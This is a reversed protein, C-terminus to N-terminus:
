RTLSSQPSTSSFRQGHKERLPLCQPPCPSSPGPPPYRLLFLPLQPDEHGPSWTRTPSRCLPTWALSAPVSPTPRTTAWWSRCSLPAPSTLTSHSALLQSSVWVSHFDTVDSVYFRRTDPHKCIKIHKPMRKWRCCCLACCYWACCLTCLTCNLSYRYRLAIAYEGQRADSERILFVGDKMRHLCQEAEIRSM